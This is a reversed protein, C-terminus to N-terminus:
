RRNGPIEGDLRSKRNPLNTMRAYKQLTSVTRLPRGRLRTPTPPPRASAAATEARSLRLPSGPLSGRPPSWPRRPLSRDILGPWVAAARTRRWPEPVSGEPRSAVPPSRAAAPPSPAWASATGLGALALPDEVPNVRQQLAPHQLPMGEELAGIRAAAERQPQSVLVVHAAVVQDVQPAAIRKGAVFPRLDFEDRRPHELAPALERHEAAPALRSLDAKVPDTLVRRLVIAGVVQKLLGVSRREESDERCTAGEHQAPSDLVASPRLLRSLPRERRNFGPVRGFFQRSKAGLRGVYVSLAGDSEIPARRGPIGAPAAEDTGRQM